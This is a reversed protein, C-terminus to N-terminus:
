EVKSSDQSEDRPSPSNGEDGRWSVSKTTMPGFKSLQVGFAQVGICGHYLKTRHGSSVHYARKGPGTTYLYRFWINAGSKIYMTVEYYPVPWTKYQVSYTVPGYAWGPSPPPPFHPRQDEGALAPRAALMLLLGALLWFLMFM